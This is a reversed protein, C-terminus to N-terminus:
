NEATRGAPPLNRASHRTNEALPIFHYWQSPASLFEEVLSNAVQRTAAEIAQTRPLSKELIVAPKATMRYFGDERLSVAVPIIPCDALHALLAASTSFQVSGGPLRVPLTGGQTPRDVLLACFRGAQLAQVVRLSSFSDAGIEITEAGWKKRFDARWKTLAATPEGLTLVTVPINLEKLLLAGYEFFGFHGTALIAGRAQTRVSELVEFGTRETCLESAASLPLSGMRLYDALGHAFNAFTSKALSSNAQEPTLIALNNKVVEVISPHSATYFAAIQRALFVCTRRGLIGAAGSLLAFAASTYGWRYFLRETHATPESM